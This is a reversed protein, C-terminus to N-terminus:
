CCWKCCVYCGIDTIVRNHRRLKSLKSTYVFIFFIL